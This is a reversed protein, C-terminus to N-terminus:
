DIRSGSIPESKEKAFLDCLLAREEKRPRISDRQCGAVLFLYLNNNQFSSPSRTQSVFFPEFRYENDDNFSNTIGVRELFM